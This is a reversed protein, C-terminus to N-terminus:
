LTKKCSFSLVKSGLINDSLKRWRTTAVNISPPQHVTYRFVHVFISFLALLDAIRHSTRKCHRRLTPEHRKLAVLLLSFAVFCLDNFRTLFIFFIWHQSCCDNKPASKLWKIPSKEQFGLLTLFMNKKIWHLYNNGINLYILLPNLTRKSQKNQATRTISYHTCINYICQCVLQKLTTQESGTTYCGVAQPKLYTTRDRM